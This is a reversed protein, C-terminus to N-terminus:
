NNANQVFFEAYRDFLLITWCIFTWNKHLFYLTTQMQLVYGFTQMRYKCTKLFKNNDVFSM